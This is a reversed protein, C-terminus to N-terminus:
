ECMCNIFNLLNLLPSHQRCSCPPSSGCTVDFRDFCCTGTGAVRILCGHYLAHTLSTSCFATISLCFGSHMITDYPANHSLVAQFHNFILKAVNLLLEPWIRGMAPSRSKFSMQATATTQFSGVKWVIPMSKCPIAPANCYNSTCYQKSCFMEWHVDMVQADAADLLRTCCKYRVGFAWDCSLNSGLYASRAMHAAASAHRAQKNSRAHKWNCEFAM